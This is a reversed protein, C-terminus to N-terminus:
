NPTQFTLNYGCRFAARKAQERFLELQDRTLVYPTRCQIVRGDEIIEIEVASELDFELMRAMKGPAEKDIGAFSVHVLRENVRRVSAIAPM